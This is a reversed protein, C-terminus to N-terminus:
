TTCTACLQFGINSMCTDCSVVLEGEKNTGGGIWAEAMSVPELGLAYAQQLMKPASCNGVPNNAGATAKRLLDLATLTEGGGGRSKMSGAAKLPPAWHQDVLLNDVADASTAAAELGKLDALARQLDPNTPDKDLAAQALKCKIDLDRQRHWVAGSAGYIVVERTPDRPDRCILAGIMKGATVGVEDPTEKAQRVSQALVWDAREAATGGVPDPRGALDILTRVKDFVKKKAADDRPIQNVTKCRHCAAQHAREDLAVQMNDLYQEFQATCAVKASLTTNKFDELAQKLRFLDNEINRIKQKSRDSAFGKIPPMADALAADADRDKKLKDLAENRVRIDDALRAQAAARTSFDAELFQLEAIQADLKGILALNKSKGKAVENDRAHQLAVRQGNADAAGSCADVADKASQVQVLGQEASKIAKNTAARRTTADDAEKVLAPPLVMGKFPAVSM